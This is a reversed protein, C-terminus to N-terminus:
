MFAYERSDLQVRQALPEYTVAHLIPVIGSLGM